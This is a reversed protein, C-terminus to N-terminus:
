KEGLTTRLNNVVTNTYEPMYQTAVFAESLMSDTTIANDEYFTNLWETRVLAFVEAVIQQHRIGQM